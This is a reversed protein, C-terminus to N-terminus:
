DNSEIRYSYITKYLVPFANYLHDLLSLLDEKTELHIDAILIGRENFFATAYKGTKTSIIESIPILKKNIYMWADSIVFYSRQVYSYISLVISSFILTYLVYLVLLNLIGIVFMLIAWLFLGAILVEMKRVGSIGVKSLKIRQDSTDQEKQSADPAAIKSVIATKLNLKYIMLLSFALLTSIMLSICISLIRGTRDFYWSFEDYAFTLLILELFFIILTISIIVKTAEAVLVPMPAHVPKM